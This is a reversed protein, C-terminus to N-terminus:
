EEPPPTSTSAPPLPEFNGIPGPLPILGPAPVIMCRDTPILGNRRIDSLFQEIQKNQKAKQADTIRTGSPNQQAQIRELIQRLANEFLETCLPADANWGYGSEVGFERKIFDLSNRKTWGNAPAPVGLAKVIFLGFHGETAMEFKGMLLSHAHLLSIEMSPDISTPQFQTPALMQIMDAEILPAKPSWGKGPRIPPVHSSLANIANQETWGGKPEPLKLARTMLGAFEGQTIPPQEPFAGRARSVTVLKTSNQFDNTSFPLRYFPTNRLLKALTSEPLLNTLVWGGDPVHGKASLAASATQATFGTDPEPLKLAQAFLIAFDGLTINLCCENPYYFVTRAAFAPTTLFMGLLLGLVVRIKM